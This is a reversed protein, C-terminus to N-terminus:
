IKWMIIKLIGRMSSVLLIQKVKLVKKFQHDQGM